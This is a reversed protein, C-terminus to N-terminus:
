FSSPYQYKNTKKREVSLTKIIADLSIPSTTSKAYECAGLAVFYQSNEPFIANEENLNLSCVFRKRLGNFFTLPGGLFAVKGKIERGQALGGITQNVM